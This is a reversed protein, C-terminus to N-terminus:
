KTEEKPKAKSLNKFQMKLKSLIEQQEKPSKKKFEPNKVIEDTKKRLEAIATAREDTPQAAQALEQLLAIGDKMNEIDEPDLELISFPSVKYMEIQKATEMPNDFEAAEFYQLPTIMGAVVLEKATEARYVRDVPMIQGPIVKIEIGDELNDQMIEIVRMATEKGLLKTYHSETYNIKMFQLQWNYIELHLTDVVDVLENLRQFGRERLIARGTATESGEREGRMTAQTGFISELSQISMVLDETVMNPLDRGSEITVGMGVGDGIIMGEPDSKMAQWEGKSKLEMHKTDIKWRGNASAANDSIQRKRKNINEQLSLVQEILSTEGVEKKEVDLMTACIYPHTPKDFHNFLYQQYKDAKKEKKMETVRGERTGRASVLLKKREKMKAKDFKRMEDKDFFVGDWDWYPNLEKKLIEGRFEHVVWDGLWAEKYSVPDNKIRADIENKRGGAKKLIEEVKDPFRDLMTDIDTDIQEVVDGNESFRISRPDVVALDFDDKDNNWINKLVIKRSLLLWRLGRRVKKKLKLTRYKELFVDTLDTAVQGSEPSENGPLVNPKSPRGTLNGIVSEVALFVRNDRVRSKKRPITAVVSDDNQWVRKNKKYTETIIASSKDLSTWRNNILRKLRTDSLNSIDIM